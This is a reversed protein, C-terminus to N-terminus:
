VAKKKKIFNVYISATASYILGILTIRDIWLSPLNPDIWKDTYYKIFSDPLHTEGLKTKIEWHWDTLPCYGWGFWIGLVAWCAATLLIIALHTKRWKVPIWGFLNFCVLSWHFIAFFIDLVLLM